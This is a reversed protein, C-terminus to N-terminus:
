EDVGRAQMIWLGCYPCWKFGNDSPGDETFQFAGGCESQWVEQEDNPDVDWRCNGRHQLGELELSEAYNIWDLLPSAANPRTM